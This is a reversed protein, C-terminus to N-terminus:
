SFSPPANVNTQSNKIEHFTHLNTTARIDSPKTLIEGLGHALIGDSPYRFGNHIQLNVNKLLALTDNEVDFINSVKGPVISIVNDKEFTVASRFETQTRFKALVNGQWARFQFREGFDPWFRNMEAECRPKIETKIYEEDIQNLIKYAEETTSCSEMITYQGHTLLYRHNFPKSDVLPMLCPFLGDMMIVSLPKQGPDSDEYILGLCPQYAIEFPFPLAEKPQFSQFSSANIVKDFPVSQGNMNISAGHEGPQLASIETDLQLKIGAQDLAKRFYNRLPEGILISPEKINHASFVNEFDWESPSVATDKQFEDCVSKFESTTVHSPKGMSDNNGVAYISYEHDVVLDPYTTMFKEFGRRCSERTEPSRPYHSGCHLRIGFQGSIGQFIDKNKDILTVKYGAKALALALHCGYWGAGIIAIEM